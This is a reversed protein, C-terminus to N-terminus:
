WPSDLPCITDDAVYTAAFFPAFAATNAFCRVLAVIDAVVFAIRRELCCFLLIIQPIKMHGKVVCCSRWVSAMDIIKASFAYSRFISLTAPHTRVNTANIPPIPNVKPMRNAKSINLMEGESTQVQIFPMKLQSGILPCLPRRKPRQVCTSPKPRRKRLGIDCKSATDLRCRHVM